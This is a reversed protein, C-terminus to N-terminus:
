KRLDATEYDLLTPNRVLGDDFTREPHREELFLKLLLKWNKVLIM